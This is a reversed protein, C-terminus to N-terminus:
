RVQLSQRGEKVRSSFHQSFTAWIGQSASGTKRSVGGYDLLGANPMRLKGHGEPPRFIWQIGPISNLHDVSMLEKSSFVHM